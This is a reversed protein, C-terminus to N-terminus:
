SIIRNSEHPYKNHIARGTANLGYSRYMNVVDERDDYARAVDAITFGARIFLDLQMKKTQVSPHHEDTERMLLIEWKIGQRRMWEETIARFMVPRATFIAISHQTTKFLDRNGSSDFGCLSHYDHCRQTPTMANWDIRDLRWSDDSICNDLDLIIIGPKLVITKCSHAKFKPRLVYTSRVGFEEGCEMCRAESSGEAHRGGSLAEGDTRAVAFDRTVGDDCKVKM